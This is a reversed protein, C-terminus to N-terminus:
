CIPDPGSRFLYNILYVVDSITSEDDGNADGCLIYPFPPCEPPDGGKFLYNVFSVVDSTNVEGDGNVDGCYPGMQFFTMGYIGWTNGVELGRWQFWRVNTGDEQWTTYVGYQTTATDYGVGTVFHDTVGDGNTDVLLVAPRGADIKLTYSNWSFSSYFHNKASPIYQPEVWNVYGVFSAPTHSFWSWGYFNNESSWSTKYFDAVCNSSHAGGIESRDTLLNPRYDIPCSYDQYHDGDPASCDPNGGDDAIMANVASTQTSADGPVLNPFGNGDWYGIVMAVATPGCGHHWWYVPVGPIVVQTETVIRMGRDIGPPPVPGTTSQQAYVFRTVFMISIGAAITHLLIGKKFRKM